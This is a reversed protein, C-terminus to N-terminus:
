CPVCASMEAHIRQLGSLAQAFGYIKKDCAEPQTHTRGLIDCNSERGGGNEVRRRGRGAGRLVDLGEEVLFVAGRPVADHASVEACEHRVLALAENEEIYALSSYAQVLALIRLPFLSPKLPNSPYPPAPV